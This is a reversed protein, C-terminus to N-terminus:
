DEDIRLKMTHDLTNKNAFIPKSRELKVKSELLFLKQKDVPIFM